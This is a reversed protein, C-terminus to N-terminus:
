RIYQLGSGSSEAVQSSCRLVKVEGGCNCKAALIKRIEDIETMFIDISEKFSVKQSLNDVMPGFYYEDTKGREYLEETM